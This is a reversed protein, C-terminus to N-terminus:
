VIHHSVFRSTEGNGPSWINLSNWKGNDHARKMKWDGILFLAHSKSYFQDRRHTSGFRLVMGVLDLVTPLFGDVGVLFGDPMPTCWQVMFGLPLRPLYLCNSRFALSLCVCVAVADCCEPCLILL